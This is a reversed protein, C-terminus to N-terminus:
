SAALVHTIQDVNSNSELLQKLSRLRIYLKSTEPDAHGLRESVTFLAASESRTENGHEDILESEYLETAFTHRLDHYSYLGKFNPMCKNLLNRFISTAQSSSIPEGKHNNDTRVFLHDQTAKSLVNRETNYYNLIDELLPRSFYIWRGKKRKAYKGRLYFPFSIQNPNNKFDEFLSLLGKVPKNRAKIDELVLGQNEAARLGVEIGMRLILRDRKNTCNQLLKARIKKTVYKIKVPNNSAAEIKQHTKRYIQLHLKQCIGLSYLFNFFSSLASKHVSLTKSSINENALHNNLYNNITKASMNALQTDVSGSLTRLFSLLKSVYAQITLDSIDSEVLYEETTKNSSKTKIQHSTGLNYLHVFWLTPLVLVNFNKDSIVSLNEFHEGDFEFDQLLIKQM